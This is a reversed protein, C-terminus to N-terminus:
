PRREETRDLFSTLDDQDELGSSAVPTRAVSERALTRTTSSASRPLPLLPHPTPPTPLLPRPRPRPVAFRRIPVCGSGSGPFALCRKRWSAASGAFPSSTTAIPLVSGSPASTGAPFSTISVPDDDDSGALEGVTAPSSTGSSRARGTVIPGGRVPSPGPRDLDQSRSSGQRDAGGGATGHGMVGPFSGARRPGAVSPPSTVREGATREMAGGGPGQVTRRLGDRTSDAWM